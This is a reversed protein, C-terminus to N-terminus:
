TARTRRERLVYAVALAALLALVLPLLLSIGGGSDGVLTGALAGLGSGSAAQGGRAPESEHERRQPDATAEAYHATADGEPGLGELDAAVSPALAEDGGGSGGSTGQSGGSTGQSGSGGTSGGSGGGDLPHDGEPGGISPLYQDVESNGPPVTQAAAPAALVAIGAAAVLVSAVTRRQISNPRM